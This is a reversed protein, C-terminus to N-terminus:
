PWNFNAFAWNMLGRADTDRSQSNLVVAYLRHGNRSAAAAMTPGAGRTYGTKIGDNGPYSLFTNINSLPIQRNGRAVYFQTTVIERFGPLTMGYRSLMALDYASTYHAAGGLGHPNVFHSDHLGLRSVLANMQDVFAPDSGAVHRGIALAADNGSPLIMGYLLDRLTFRDGPVLGMVTSGRMVRSDVDVDVWDDLGSRELALILTVIKTLSAPQLSAHADKDYLVAGSAEDIVVAGAAPVAPPLAGSRPVPPGAWAIPATFPVPPGAELALPPALETSPPATDAAVPGAQESGSTQKGSDALVAGLAAMMIVLPL